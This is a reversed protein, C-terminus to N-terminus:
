VTVLESRPVHQYVWEGGIQWILTGGFVVCDVAADKGSNYISPTDNWKPNDFVVIYM